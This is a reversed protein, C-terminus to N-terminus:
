NSRNLCPLPPVTGRPRCVFKGRVRVLGSGDRVVTLGDNKLRAPLVNRPKPPAIRPKPDLARPPGAAIGSISPSSALAPM